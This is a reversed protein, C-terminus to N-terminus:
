VKSLLILMLGKEAGLVAKATLLIEVTGKRAVLTTYSAIVASYAEAGVGSVDSTSSFAAMGLSYGAHDENIQFRIIVGSPNSGVTYMCTTVLSTTTARPDGVAVGLQATVLSGPALDCGPNTAAVSAAPSPPGSTAAPSSGCAFLVVAAILTLSLRTGAKMLFRM